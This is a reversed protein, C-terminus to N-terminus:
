FQFADETSSSWPGTYNMQLHCAWNRAFNAWVLLYIQLNVPKLKSHQTTLHGMSAQTENSMSPGSKIWWPTTSRTLRRCLWWMSQNPCSPNLIKFTMQINVSDICALFFCTKDWHSKLTLQGHFQFLLGWLSYIHLGPYSDASILPKILDSQGIM